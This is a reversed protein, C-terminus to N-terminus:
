RSAGLVNVVPIWGRTDDRVVLAEVICLAERTWRGICLFNGGGLNEICGDRRFCELEATRQAMCLAQAMARDRQRSWPNVPGNITGPISCVVTM